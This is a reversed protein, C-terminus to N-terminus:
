ILRTCTLAMDVARKREGLRRPKLFPRTGPLRSRPPFSKKLAFLLFRAFGEFSSPRIPRSKEREEALKKTEAHLILPSSISSDKRM